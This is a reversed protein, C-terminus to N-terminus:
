RSAAPKPSAEPTPAAMDKTISRLNRALAETQPRAEGRYALVFPRNRGGAVFTGHVVETEGEGPPEPKVTVGRQVKEIRVVVDPTAGEAALRLDGARARVAERLETAWAEGDAGCGEAAVVGV